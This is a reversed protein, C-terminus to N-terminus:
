GETEKLKRLGYSIADEKGFAGAKTIVKLGDYEGGILRMLPIGVAIEGLIESGIAGATHFFGIATDGGTLFIGSVGANKLVKNGIYGMIYQTWVSVDERLMGRKVGAEVTRVLDSRDYSASSLVLTDKGSKLAEVAKEAYVDARSEDDFLEYVPISVLTVGAREAYKVQENTVASVSAILGMAPKMPCELQFINDAMAATGVYLVKRGTAKAARIVTQMHANTVADCSVVRVGTFDLAGAEIEEICFHRVPEEYVTKLVAQIDDLVVPKKPDKAIETKTIPVGNLRHIKDVTTRGLDPLAPMFLVLGSGYAEDVAKVEDAINGRLTSDVKKIVYEFDSFDVKEIDSTVKAYAEAGTLGRSETDIVCSVGEKPSGPYRFVVSTAFGLRRLQVGTDNAGTFDDAIILNRSM